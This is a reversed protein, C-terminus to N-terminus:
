CHRLCMDAGDRIQETELRVTGRVDLLVGFAWAVPTCLGGGSGEPCFGDLEPADHRGCRLPFLLVTPSEVFASLGAALM